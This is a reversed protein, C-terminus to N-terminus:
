RAAGNGRGSLVQEARMPDLLSEPRRQNKPLHKAATFVREWYVPDPHHNWAAIACLTRRKTHNKWPQDRLHRNFTDQLFSTIDGHSLRPPGGAVGNGRLTVRPADAELSSFVPREISPQQDISNGKLPFPTLGGPAPPDPPRTEKPELDRCVFGTLSDRDRDMPPPMGHPMPPETTESEQESPADSPGDLPAHWPADTEEDNAPPLSEVHQLVRRAAHTWSQGKDQCVALLEACIAPFFSCGRAQKLASTYGKVNKSSDPPVVSLVGPCWGFDGGHKDVALFGASTVEALLRLAEEEPCKLAHAVNGPNIGRVLGPLRTWNNGTRLWCYLLKAALTLYRFRPDMWREREITGFDVVIV